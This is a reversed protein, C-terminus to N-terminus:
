IATPRDTRPLLALFSCLYGKVIPIPAHPCAPLPLILVLHGNMSQRKPYPAVTQPRSARREYHSARVYAQPFHFPDGVIYALSPQFM